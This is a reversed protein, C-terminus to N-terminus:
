IGVNGRPWRVTERGAAIPKRGRGKGVWGDSDEAM